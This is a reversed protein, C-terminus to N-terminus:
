CIAAQEVEAQVAGLEDCAPDLMCSLFPCVPQGGEPEAARFYQPPLGEFPSVALTRRQKPWQCGISKTRGRTFPM